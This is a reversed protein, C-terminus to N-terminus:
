QKIIMHTYYDDCMFYDVFTGWYEGNDISGHGIVNEELHEDNKADNYINKLFNVLNEFGPKVHM